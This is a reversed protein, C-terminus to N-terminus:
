VCVSLTQLVNTYIFTNSIRTRSRIHLQGPKAVTEENLFVLMHFYRELWLIIFTLNKLDINELELSQPGLLLCESIRVRSCTKVFM